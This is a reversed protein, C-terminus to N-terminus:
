LFFWYALQHPSFIYLTSHARLFSKINEMHTDKNPQTDQEERKTIYKCATIIFLMTQSGPSLIGFAVVSCGPLKTVTAAIGLM